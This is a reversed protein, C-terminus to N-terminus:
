QIFKKRASNAAHNADLSNMLTDITEPDIFRPDIWEIDISELATM